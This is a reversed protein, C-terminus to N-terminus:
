ANQANYSSAIMKAPAEDIIVYDLNGNILDQVALAGATYGVGTAEFGAFGWSEDGNVYYEGTTGTQYGIKKSSDLTNLIKEVDEPTKCGDFTTDGAKAVVMQSAKYYPESFTVFKQRDENVTLGAAAVDAYGSDVTTCVADFDVNKIVLEKGLKDALLKAMEMDIGYFTEGEVYEFPPFTANTVVVLQDKSADEKASVVGEPTGEGFYKAILKDLEGNEKIEKIFSNVSEQLAADNKSVGFAYNEDTLAIDVVKVVDGKSDKNGGCSAFAALMAIVLLIASVKFLKKM